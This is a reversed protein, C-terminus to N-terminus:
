YFSFLYFDFSIHYLDLDSGLFCLWDGNAKPIAKNWANYIGSDKESIWYNIKESYKKIIMITNDSSKGDIIILEVLKTDMEQKNIAEVLFKSDDWQNGIIIWSIIIDYEGNTISPTFTKTEEIASEKIM